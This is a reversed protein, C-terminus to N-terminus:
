LTKALEKIYERTESGIEESKLAIEVNAKIYGFKDGVDYRSGEFCSALLEGKRALEDFADTLYIENNRPKLNELMKIIKGDLVYRGIIAYNSLAENLSPKEKIANVTMIGDEEDGVGINGYKSVDDGFVEMTAMVSKGTKEFVNVLRKICSTQNKESFLLEDGLLLAFPEGDIFDKACLIAGALGNAQHQVVYHMNFKRTQREIELLKNKGESILREELTKAEGFHKKIIDSDPSIVVAVDTIGVADLEEAIFQITPKDLVSLMPKPIAKTIPLFRTGLGAAPIVAKRVKKM